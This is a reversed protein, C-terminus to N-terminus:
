RIFTFIPGWFPRGAITTTPLHDNAAAITQNYVSSAVPNVNTVFLDQYNLTRRKVPMKDSFIMMKIAKHLNKYM